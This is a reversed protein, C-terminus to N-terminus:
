KVGWHSPVWQLTVNRGNNILSNIMRQCDHVLRNRSPLVSSVALIAAQSDILFAIIRDERKGFETLAMHVSAVEGDYNTCTAGVARILSFYRSYVGAGAASGDTYVYLWNTEPFREGITALAAM